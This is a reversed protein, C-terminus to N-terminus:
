APTGEGARRIARDFRSTRHENEANAYKESAQDAARSAFDHSEAAGSSDGILADANLKDSPTGMDTQAMDSEGSKLWCTNGIGSYGQPVRSTAPIARFM